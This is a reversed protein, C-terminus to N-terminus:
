RHVLYLFFEDAGTLGRSNAVTSTNRHNREHNYRMRFQAGFDINRQGAKPDKLRDHLSIADLSTLTIPDEYSFIGPYETKRQAQASFPSLFTLLLAILTLNQLSKM